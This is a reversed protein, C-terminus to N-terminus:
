PIMLSILHVYFVNIEPKNMCSPQAELKFCMLQSPKTEREREWPLCIQNPLGWAVFTIGTFMASTSYLRASKAIKKKAKKVEFLHEHIELEFFHKSIECFYELIEFFLIIKFINM